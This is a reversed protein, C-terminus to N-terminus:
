IGNGQFQFRTPIFSYVIKWMFVKIKPIVKAIWIDKWLRDRNNQDMGDSGLVARAEYYAFKVLFMSNISDQWILRDEKNAKSLPIKRILMSDEETMLERVMSM